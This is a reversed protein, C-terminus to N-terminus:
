IKSLIQIIMESLPIQTLVKQITQGDYLIVLSVYEKGDEETTIMIEVTEGEMLYLGETREKKIAQFFGDIKGGEAIKKITPAFTKVILNATPKNMKM